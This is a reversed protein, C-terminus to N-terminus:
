RHLILHIGIGLNSSCNISRDKTCHGQLVKWILWGDALRFSSQHNWSLHTSCFSKRQWLLCCSLFSNASLWRETLWLQFPLDQEKKLSWGAYMQFKEFCVRQCFKPEKFNTWLWKDWRGFSWKFFCMSNGLKGCSVLPCCIRSEWTGALLVFM